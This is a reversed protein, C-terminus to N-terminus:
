VFKTLGLAELVASIQAATPTASLVQQVVPTEGFFGIKSGNADSTGGEMDIASVLTGASMVGLQLLGDETGASVDQSSVSIRGYIEDVSSSNEAMFDINGITRFDAPTNHNQILQLLVAQTDDTETLWVTAVDSVRLTENTRGSGTWLEISDTENQAIINLSTAQPVISHQRGSQLWEIEGDETFRIRANGDMYFDHSGTSLSLYNMGGSDALIANKNGVAGSQQFRVEDTYIDDWANSAGGLHRTGDTDPVISAVDTLGFNDANINSTWPTQSGGGIVNVNSGNEKTRLKNTSANYWLDGNGTSSPDGVLLGVNVGANTSDPNFIAQFGDIFTLNGDSLIMQDVANVQFVYEALNPVNFRLEADTTDYGIAAATNPFTYTASTDFNMDRINKIRNNKMDLALITALNEFRAIESGSIFRFFDGSNVVFDMEGSLSNISHSAQFFDLNAVGEITAFAGDLDINTVGFLDHQKLDMGFTDTIELINTINDFLQFKEGATLTLRVGTAILGQLLGHVGGVSDTIQLAAIKNLTKNGADHDATWPGFFEGAAGGGGGGFLAWENTISDFVAWFNDNDVITLDLGDFTRINGRIANANIDPVASGVSGLDYTFTTGGTVTISVHDINFAPAGTIKIFDGTALATTDAVTVTIIQTVGDGVINTIALLLSNRITFTETLIGQLDLLQGAFSANHIFDLTTAAAASVIARSTYAIQADKGLNISNDTADIPAIDPFLAFPGIMTDGETKLLGSPGSSSSTGASTGIPKTESSSFGKRDRLLAHLLQNQQNYKVLLDEVTTAQRAKANVM